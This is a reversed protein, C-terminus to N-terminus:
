ASTAKSSVTCMPEITRDIAEDIQIGTSANSTCRSKRQPSLTGQAAETDFGIFQMQSDNGLLSARSNGQRSRQRSARSSKTESTELIGDLSGALPPPLISSDRQHSSTANFEELEVQAWVDEVEHGKMGLLKVGVHEVFRWAYPKPPVASMGDRTRAKCRLKFIIKAFREARKKWNWEQLLDIIGLRYLGPGELVVASYSHPGEHLTSVVADGSSHAPLLSGSPSATLSPRRAISPTLSNPDRLARQETVNHIGVLMSYDM